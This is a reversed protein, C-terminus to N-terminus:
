SHNCRAQPVAVFLDTMRQELEAVRSVLHELRHLHASTRLWTRHEQAPLTSAYIGPTTLSKTVVSMARVHVHDALALHGLVVVGGALTCHAGITTSGAIGVCGAIATHAGLRVNHAVQVQNDIKVGVGILTDELAGRDITTNAGIEVDDGICVRGLQPVKFWSGDEAPAFGFGDAGIVAGPHIIVRAGLVCERCLTVRAALRSGAGISCGAEIVCGAGIVVGADLRVADGIVVGAGICVDAALQATAAVVATPHIGPASSPEPHLLQAVRAYTLYPNAVVWADAPCASRMDEHLLVVGAQTQTLQQRYRQNAYFSLQTAGAQRLTAVGTIVREPM